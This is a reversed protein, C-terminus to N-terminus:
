GNKVETPALPQQQETPKTTATNPNSRSLEAAIGDIDAEKIPQKVVDAVVTKLWPVSLSTPAASSLIASMLLRQELLSYSQDLGQDFAEKIRNARSTKEMAARSAQGGFRGFQEASKAEALAQTIARAQKQAGASQARGGVRSVSLGIDVAPKAGKHLSELDFVLQGDTMSILSTALYSTLDGNPTTGIALVTQTAGSGALKGARELLSSHMYFMDGPYGERGAPIGLRLSMERYLKAHHTLDDYCLMVDHGSYWFSEAVAAAVYPAIFSQPLYRSSEAVIVIMNKIAGTKRLQKLQDRIDSSRKVMFVVVVVTGTKAQHISAQLALSTKGSKADGILAIRQGKVIPFLTDVVCIGTELQDSLLIRETFGPGQTFIKRSKKSVVETSGDLPRLLPDVVRGLLDKSVDTSLLLGTNAMLMGMTPIEGILLLVKVNDDNLQWVFGEADNEFVVRSFRKVGVATTATIIIDDVGIVESVVAEQKALHEFRKAPM